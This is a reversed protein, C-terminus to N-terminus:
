VGNFESRYRVMGNVTKLVKEDLVLVMFHDHADGKVVYPSNFGLPVAPQFGFRPYYAPDGVLFVLGFGFEKMVQTGAQILASGIGKGQFEPDVAIPGLAPFIFQPKGDGVTVLSYLAHGVISDCVTAVLSLLIANNERLKNVLDAEETRQFAAKEVLYIDSVDAPREERIVINMDFIEARALLFLIM